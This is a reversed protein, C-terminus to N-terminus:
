IKPLLDFVEAGDHYHPYFCLLCVILSVGTVTTTAIGQKRNQIAVRMDAWIWWHTTITSLRMVGSHQHAGNTMITCFFFFFFSAKHLLKVMRICVALLLYQEKRM